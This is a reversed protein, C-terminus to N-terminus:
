YKRVDTAKSQDKTSEPRQCDSRACYWNASQSSAQALADDRIRFTRLCTPCTKTNSNKEM